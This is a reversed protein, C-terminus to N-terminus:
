ARKCFPSSNFLQEIQRRFAAADAFRYYRNFQAWAENTMGGYLYPLVLGLVRCKVSDMAGAQVLADIQAALDTQALYAEAQARYYAPYLASQPRYLRTGRDYALVVEVLPSEAGSCFQYTYTPDAVILEPIGDVNPDAFRAGCASTSTEVVKTIRGGLDYIHTSCALGTAGGFSMEFVVDPNGEGTIDTGTLDSVSGGAFSDVQVRPQDASDITLVTYTMTPDSWYRVAYRGILWERQLNFILSQQAFRHTTPPIPPPIGRDIAQQAGLTSQLAGLTAAGLALEQASRAQATATAEFILTPALFTATAAQGDDQQQALAIETARAIDAIQTEVAFTAFALQTMQANAQAIQAEVSATANANAQNMQPVFVLLILGGLLILALLLGLGVPLLWRSRARTTPTLPSAAQAASPEARRTGGMLPVRRTEQQVATPSPVTPQSAPSPITAQQPQVPPLAGYYTLTEILQRQGSDYAQEAFDVYQGPALQVGLRSPVDLAALVVPRQREFYANWDSLVRREAVATASLLVVMADCLEFGADLDNHMRGGVSLVPSDLWVDAGRQTLALAIQRAFTEDAHSHSLYIRAM